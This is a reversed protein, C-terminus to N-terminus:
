ISFLVKLKFNMLLLADFLLKMFYSVGLTILGPLCFIIKSFFWDKLKMGKVRNKGKVAVFM